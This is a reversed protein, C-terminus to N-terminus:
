CALVSLKIKKRYVSSSLIFGCSFVILRYNIFIDDTIMSLVTMVTTSRSSQFYMCFKSM